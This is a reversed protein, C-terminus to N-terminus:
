EFCPAEVKVNDFRLIAHKPPFSDIDIPGQLAMVAKGIELLTTYDGKGRVVNELNRNTPLPSSLLFLYAWKEHVLRSRDSSVKLESALLLECRQYLCPVVCHRLIYASHVPPRHYSIELCLFM